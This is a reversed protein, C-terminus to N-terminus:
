ETADGTSWVLIFQDWSGTALAQGKKNVGLCSVRASHGLGKADARAARDRSLGLQYWKLNQSTTEWAVATNDEYGAFLLSGSASHAISTVCSGMKMQDSFVAITGRSRLDFMRCTSDDSASSIVNGSPYFDVANVDSDHGFFTHTCKGTRVDWVRVSGDCSGSCFVNKDNPSLSLSMVDAAHDTFQMKRTNSDIDWLVCTSDGSSTLIEDTSLFRCCSLYGEHGTLEHTTESLTTSPPSAINFLSCVNDLGGCAVFKQQDQEFACTMVWASKLNVALQRTETYANWVLLKGDQSASVLRTSDTCQSSTFDRRTCATCAHVPVACFHVFSSAFAAVCFKANAWTESALDFPRAAFNEASLVGQLQVCRRGVHTLLDQRLPRAPTPGCWIWIKSQWIPRNREV